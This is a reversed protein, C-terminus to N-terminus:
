DDGVGGFWSYAESMLADMRKETLQIVWDLAKDFTLGCKVIGLDWEPVNDDEIFNHTFASNNNPTKDDIFINGVPRYGAETILSIHYNRLYSLCDVISTDLEVIEFSGYTSPKSMRFDGFASDRVFATFEDMNFWVPRNLAQQM